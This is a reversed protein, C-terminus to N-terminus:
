SITEQRTVIFDLLETLLKGLLMEYSPGIDYKSAMACVSLVVHSHVTGSRLSQLFSKKHLLLSANYAHSFYIDVLDWLLTQPVGYYAQTEVTRGSLDPTQRISADSVPTAVQIRSPSPVDSGVQPPNGEREGEGYSCPRRLRM